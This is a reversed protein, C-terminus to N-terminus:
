RRWSPSLFFQGARNITLPMAEGSAVDIITLRGDMRNTAVVYKSDSSWDVRFYYGGNPEVIRRGTGDPRVVYLQGRNADIYAIYEGDPSWAPPFGAVGLPTRVGTMLNLIEFQGWDLASYDSIGVVRAGDPSLSPFHMPADFPTLQERATGDVKIRFLAAQSIAPGNYYIWQGDRSYAPWAEHALQNQPTALRQVTATAVDAIWL